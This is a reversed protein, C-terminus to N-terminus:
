AEEEEEEDSGEFEAELEAITDAFTTSSGGVYMHDDDLACSIHGIWYAKAREYTIGEGRIMQTAESLLEKMQDKIEALREVDNRTITM